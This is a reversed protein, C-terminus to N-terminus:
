LSVDLSASMEVHGLDSVLVVGDKGSALPDKDRDIWCPHLCFEPTSRTGPVRPTSIVCQLRSGRGEALSSFKLNGEM